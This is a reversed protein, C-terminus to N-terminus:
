RSGEPGAASLWLRNRSSTNPSLSEPWRSASWICQFPVPSTRGSSARRYLVPRSLSGDMDGQWNYSAGEGVTKDRYSFVMTPDEKKWPGWDEWTKLDQVIEYVVEKPANIERSSEIQYTGDQTAFYIAGAIIAILVLFLLFKIFKM